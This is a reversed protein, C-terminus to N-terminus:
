FFAFLVNQREPYNRQIFLIKTNENTDGCNFFVSVPFNWMEVVKKKM